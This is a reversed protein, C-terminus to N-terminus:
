AAVGLYADVVRRDATVEAFSGSVLPQGEALVHVHDCLAGVLAMDHEVLGFSLGDARLERILRVIEALLPPAVGAAPEDLMIMVPDLLLARALELLKKQGGSLAGAPRDALRWLGVRELLARARTANRRETERIKGRQLLAGTITEGVQGLPALLLNELVTLSRFERVIQFTRVLGLGAVRHSPLNTIEQGQFIVRGQDPRVLGCILNLLTTKGAGNPGILGTIAGTSFDLSCDLVAAVGGFSKSLQSVQLLPTL